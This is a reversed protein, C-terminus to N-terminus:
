FPLKGYIKNDLEQMVEREKVCFENINVNAGGLFKSLFDQSICSTYESNAKALQAQLEPNNNKKDM